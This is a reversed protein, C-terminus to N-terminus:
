NIWVENLLKDYRAYEEDRKSYVRILHAWYEKGEFLEHGRLVIESENRREVTHIPYEGENEDNILATVLKRPSYSDREDTIVIDKVQIREKFMEAINSRNFRWTTGNQNDKSQLTQTTM